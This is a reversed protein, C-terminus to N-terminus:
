DSAERSQIRRMALNAASLLEPNTSKMLDEIVPVASSDGRLGIIDLLRLRIPHEVSHLYPYLRRIESTNFELLYHYAQDKGSSNVVEILHEERGLHYLAFSMGLKVKGSKERLYQEAVQGVDSSDGIRGLGEAALLRYSDRSDELASLFLDRCSSDGIYALAELLKKRLDDKGTVPVFGLIKKREEVGSEYLEKLLPLAERVRLRGLTFIAEDHVKKDPDRVLPIVETGASPDGIKYITRIL